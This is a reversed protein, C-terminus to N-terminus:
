VTIESGWEHVIMFWRKEDDNSRNTTAVNPMMAETSPNVVGDDCSRPPIVPPLNPIKGEDIRKQSYKIIIVFVSDHGFKIICM